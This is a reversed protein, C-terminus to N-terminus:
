RQVCDDCYFEGQIGYEPGLNRAMRRTRNFRCLYDFLNDALPKNLSFKGHFNTTYGM